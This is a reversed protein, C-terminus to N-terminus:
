KKRFLCFGGDFFCTDEVYRPSLYKRDAGSIYYFDYTTDNEIPAADIWKIEEFRGPYRTGTEQAMPVCFLWHVRLNIKGPKGESERVIRDLVVLDYKDFWWPRSSDFNLNKFFHFSSFAVIGAFLTCSAYKLVRKDIHNLFSVLLLIYLTYMFLATRDQIYKTHLLEHQMKICVCCIVLLLWFLIGNKAGADLKKKVLLYVWYIGILVVSAAVACSVILLTLSAPDDIYLTEKILSMITDRFLGTDGGYFLQDAKRLRLIPGAILIALIVTSIGLSFIRRLYLTKDRSEKFLAPEIILIGAMAFYYYLLTFNSYVSLIAGFFCLYLYRFKKGDLHLLLFYISATMFAISMGYGRSYGWFEFEFPNLNLLVFTGIQWLPKKFFRSCLLACFVLFIIQAGLSGIRLYFDNDAFHEVFFKRVISNLIHTNATPHEMYIFEWYSAHYHSHPEDETLPVHLIRLVNFVILLGSFSAYFLWTLISSTKKSLQLM